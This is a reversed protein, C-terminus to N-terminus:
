YLSFVYHSSHWGRRQAVTVKERMPLETLEMGFVDRLLLQAEQFVAQFQRSQTGNLVKQIVDQRRIPNRSHESSLAYRVLKRALQEIADTQGAAESDEAGSAAASSDESRRRQRRQPAGTDL